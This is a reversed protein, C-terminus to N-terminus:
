FRPERPEAAVTPDREPETPWEIADPFKSQAPVDRPRQRYERARSQENPDLPSDTAVMWDSAALRRDREIRAAVEDM